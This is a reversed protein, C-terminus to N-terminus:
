SKERLVFGVGRVTHILAPEFGDDIKRRLHAVHVDIVNDLPTVRAPESWIDRALMERSVVHGHHRVLYLLLDFERATLSISQGARTVSRAHPDIYLDALQVPDSNDPRGRRSLARIRALLEPFAFPKVLYDDAGTDLGLVRDEVADKATLILVPAQVGKERLESLVTTGSKRPLMLDLLILDFRGTAARAFGDSGDAALSVEYGEAELGTRLASAVKTEDEIVLIRM